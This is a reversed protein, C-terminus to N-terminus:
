MSDSSASSSFSLISKFRALMRNGSSLSMFIFGFEVNFLITYASITFTFFNCELDRSFIKYVLLAVTLQPVSSQLRLTSIISFNLVSLFTIFAGESGTM